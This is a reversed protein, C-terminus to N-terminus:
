GHIFGLQDIKGLWNGSTIESTEPDFLPIIEAAKLNHTSARPPPELQSTSPHIRNLVEAVKKTIIEEITRKKALREPSDDERDMSDSKNEAEREVVQKPNRNAKKRREM